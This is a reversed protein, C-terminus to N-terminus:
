GSVHIRVFTAKVPLHDSIEEEPHLVDSEICKLFKNNYFIYDIKEKPERSNFTFYDNPALTYKSQSIASSIGSYNLIIDITKEPYANKSYPPTCNFDGCLIVPYKNEYKKFIELVINVPKERTPGDYAELHVNILLLSDSETKIWVLQALRELYFATYYFPNSQPEPLVLRENSIISANSLVAQGSLIEGFHYKVPWYPFPVYTKDWNVVTAGSSFSGLIALEEFQNVFWDESIRAGLGPTEEQKLIRMGYIKSLAKDTSLIIDINGWMNSKRQNETNM